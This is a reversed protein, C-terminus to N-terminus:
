IEALYSDLEFEVTQNARSSSSFRHRMTFQLQQPRCSSCQILSEAVDELQFHWDGQVYIQTKM